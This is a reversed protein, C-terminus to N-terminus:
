LTYFWIAGWINIFAGAALLVAPLGTYGTVRETRYVREDEFVVLMFPLMDALYRCGFQWGGMTRHCLTVLLHLTFCGLWLWRKANMRRVLCVLLLIYAPNVLFFLTGNFQPWFGEYEPGPMKFIEKLNGPVYSLSFQADAAFEPLYNHGFEFFSGFRALNYAGMAIGTGVMPLTYPACRLLARLAGKGDDIKQYLQLLLLPAYIVQFPRCAMAAGLALFSLAWNRKKESQMLFLSLVSFFFGQTQASFWVWGVVSLYFLNSGLTMLLAILAAYMGGMERRMLYRYILLFTGIGFLTNVLSDPTNGQFFPTLLAMVVSPFPPFSVYYHGKYFALELWTVNEPLAASGSWWALAQRTYSDYTSHALPGQGILGYVIIYACVLATLAPVVHYTFRKGYKEM